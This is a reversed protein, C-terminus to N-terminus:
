TRTLVVGAIITAAGAGQWLTPVENLWAWAVLLAIVPQLNSYMATRTPGIARMGRYWFLYAIALSGIGSYAIAAWAALSVHTWDTHVISPMSVAVLPVAGGIMTVASITLLDLRDAYPKLLVTFAAWLLAGALILLDGLPTAEHTSRTATALVIMGIGLVSLVIGLVGRAGIRDVGTMRGFVAVLSPSAALILAANGARTHAVGEAFLLQYVCNGLVGLALLVVLDRRSLPTKRLARVCVALTVAALAVRVANFALPDLVDTGFKVVVYNVGWITSRAILLLDTLSAGPRAATGTRDPALTDDLTSAM